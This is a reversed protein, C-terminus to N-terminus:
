AVSREGRKKPQIVVDEVGLVATVKRLAKIWPGKGNEIAHYTTEHIKAKRATERMTWLKAERAAKIKKYDYQM